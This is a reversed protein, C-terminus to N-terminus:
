RPGLDTFTLVTAQENTMTHTHYHYAVRWGQYNDVLWCVIALRVHGKLKVTAAPGIRRHLVENITRCCGDIEDQDSDSVSLTDQPTVPRVTSRVVSGATAPRARGGDLLQGRKILKAAQLAHTRQEEEPSAPDDVKALLALVRQRDKDRDNGNSKKGVM